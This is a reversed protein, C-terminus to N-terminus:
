RSTENFCNNKIPLVFHFISGKGVESDVWIRGGHAEIFARCIYLGLGTGAIQRQRASDLRSFKQFLRPLDSSAIGMGKDAISVQVGDNTKSINVRVFAGDPSYKIANGLLNDIVEYIRRSDGSIEIDEELFEFKLDVNADASRTEMLSTILENIRFPKFDLPFNGTELRSMTLTDAALSALHKSQRNIIALYKKIGEDSVRDQLLESFAQISTLPSRFDHAVMSVLEDKLRIAERLQENAAIIKAYLEANEVAISVQSTLNHLLDLDAQTFPRNNKVDRSACFTGLLKRQASSRDKVFIPFSILSADNSPDQALEEQQCKDKHIFKSLNIARSESNLSWEAMTDMKNNQKDSFVISVLTHEADLLKGANEAISALLPSIELHSSITKGVEFLAGMQRALRQSKEYLIASEIAIAIQSGIGTLLRQDETSFNRRSSSTLLMIGITANRSRLPITVLTRIGANHSTSSLEKLSDQVQDPYFVQLGEPLQTEFFLNSFTRCASEAFERKAGSNFDLYFNKDEDLLLIIVSELDAVEVASLVGQYIEKTDLSRSILEQMRNLLALESNTLALKYLTSEMEQAIREYEGPARTLNFTVKELVRTLYFERQSPSIIIKDIESLNNVFKERDIESFKNVLWSLSNKIIERDYSIIVPIGTEIESDTKALVLYAIEPSYVIFFWDLLLTDELSLFIGWSKESIVPFEKHYLIFTKKASELAPKCKNLLLKRDPSNSTNLIVIPSLHFEPVIESLIECSNSLTKTTYTRLDIRDKYESLIFSALSQTEQGTAM